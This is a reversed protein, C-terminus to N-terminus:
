IANILPSHGAFTQCASVIAGRFLRLRDFYLRHREALQREYESQPDIPLPVLSRIDLAAVYRMQQEQRVAKAIREEKERLRNTILHSLTQEYQHKGFTVTVTKEASETLDHRIRYDPRALEVKQATLLQEVDKAIHDVMPEVNHEGKATLEIFLHNFDFFAL